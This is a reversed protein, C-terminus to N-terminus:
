IFDKDNNLFSSKNDSCLMLFKKNHPYYQCFNIKIEVGNYDERFDCFFNTCIEDFTYFNFTLGNNNKFVINIKEDVFCKIVKEYTEYLSVKIGSLTYCYIKYYNFKKGYCSIYILDYKSVVIEKVCFDNETKIVNMLNLDYDNNICIYDENENSWSFIVNLRENYLLGNIIGEHVKITKKIKINKIEYSKNNHNYDIIFEILHLYGKEDGIFIEKNNKDEINKNNNKNEVSTVLCNFHYISLIKKKSIFSITNDIHRVICYIDPFVECLSNTYPEFNFQEQIKQSIEAYKNEGFKLKFIDIKDKFKFIIEIDNDNKTNIFYYDVKEKIKKQIYKNITNLSKEESKDYINFNDEDESTEEEKENINKKINMKEHLKNFLKAPSIGFKFLEINEKIEQVKQELSIEKEKIQGLESFEEYTKLNFLNPHENSVLTQKAGFINDIWPSLDSQELYNRFKIIFEPFFYKCRTIVNNIHCTEQTTQLIGFDNYNLNLLFDFSSYFEPTLERNDETVKLFRFINNLSLFLRSPSDFKMSQFLIHQYTFPILRILYYLIFGSTSYHQNFHYKFLNYNTKIKNYTEQCEEKNLCIAKSLDRKIKNEEDMYLFPFVLYQNYDNYTRSSFKNILLLYNFNSLEGKKNKSQLQLKKFESIPDEILKFNIESKYQESNNINPINKSSKNNSQKETDEDISINNKIIKNKYNTYVKIQEIFKNINNKDFFNFMYSRNNKLFIEIGIYTLCVRRKIIEKIDDYFILVYKDKDIIKDDKITFLFQLCKEPEKSSSLDDEPSNKFILYNKNLEIFGFINGKNKFLECFFKENNLEPIVRKYKILNINEEKYIFKKLITENIYKHSIKIFKTNFFNMCPKLFPRYYEDITYNRLKTPYNLYFNESEEECNNTHETKNLHIKFAKRIKPFKKSFFLYNKFYFSFENWIYYEKPNYLIKVIEKSGDDGIILKFYLNTIDIKNLEEKLYNVLIRDNAEKTEIENNNININNILINVDQKNNNEDNIINKIEKKNEYKLQAIIQNYKEKLFTINFNTEKYNKNCIDLMENYIEFNKGQTKIKKLTSNLKKNQIYLNKLDKFITDLINKIFNKNDEKLVTSDKEFFYILFYLCFSFDDIEDFIKDQKFYIDDEDDSKSSMNDILRKEDQEYFISSKNNILLSNITKKDYNGLLFFKFIIDLIIDCVLKNKVDNTCEEKSFFSLDILNYNLLLNNDNLFEYLNLFLKPFDKSHKKNVEMLYFNNHISLLFLFINDFTKNKGKKNKTYIDNIKDFICQIIEFKIKNSNNEEKTIDKINILRLYFPNINKFFTSNIFKKILELANQEDYKIYLIIYDSFEESSYFKNVLINIDKQIFINKTYKVKIKEAFDNIFNFFYQFFNKLNENQKLCMLYEIYNLISRFRVLFKNINYLEFPHFELSKFIEPNFYVEENKSKIFKLKLENKLGFNEIFIVRLFLNSPNIMYFFKVILFVDENDNIIEKKILHCLIIVYLCYKCHFHNLTEFKKEICDNLYDLESPLINIISKINKYIIKLYHYCKKENEVKLAYIVLARCFNQNESLYLSNILNLFNKHRIDDSELIFDVLLIKYLLEDNIENININELLDNIKITYNRQEFLDYDLLISLIIQKYFVKNELDLYFIKLLNEWTDDSLIKFYKNRNNNDEDSKLINYLTFFFINMQKKVNEKDLEFIYGNKSNKQYELILLVFDIITSLYLDLLKNDIIMSDINHLMFTLFEIGKSNFFDNFCNSGNFELLSNNFTNEKLLLLNPTFILNYEYKITKFNNISDEYNKSYSMNKILDCNVNNRIILNNYYGNSNFLQKVNKIDLEKNIFFIDGLIAYLNADGIVAYMDKNFKPIGVNGKEIKKDSIKDSNLYLKLNKNKKNYTIIIFYFIKKDIKIDTNWKLDNNIEINLLNNQILIRFINKGKQLLSFVSVINNSTNILQFSLIVSFENSSFIVHENLYYNGLLYVGKDAKVKNQKINDEKIFEKLMTLINIYYAFDITSRKYIENYLKKPISNKYINKLFIIINNINNQYSGDKYLEFSIEMSNNELLKLWLEDEKIIINGKEANEFFNKFLNIINQIFINNKMLIIPFTIITDIIDKIFLLLPENNIEFIQYLKKTRKKLIEIISLLIIELIFCFNNITIEGCIYFLLLAKLYKKIRLHNSKNINIRLFCISMTFVSKNKLIIEKSEVNEKELMNKINNITKLYKNFKLLIYKPILNKQLFYDLKELTKSNDNIETKFINNELIYKNIIQKILSITIQEQIDDSKQGVIKTDM